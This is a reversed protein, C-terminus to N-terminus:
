GKSIFSPLTVRGGTLVAVGIALASVAAGGVISAMAVLFKKHETDKYAERSSIIEMENIIFQKEEFSLNEGKELMVSLSKLIIKDNEYLQKSNDDASKLAKQVIKSYEKVAEGVQKAFDPFQELAKLAVKPDMESMRSAFEIVNEKSLSRFDKIKLLKKVDKESLLKNM